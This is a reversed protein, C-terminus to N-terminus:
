DDVVCRFGISGDFHEKLFPYRMASPAAYDRNAFSNGRVIAVEDKGYLRSAKAKGGKYPEYKGQVWESVNGHMDFAGFVSQDEPYSGAALAHFLTGGLEESEHKAAFAEWAKENKLPGSFREVTHSKSGNWKNGWPYRNATPGRAAKEWEAGTPLRMDAWKCYAEADKYSVLTVPVDGMGNPYSQGRWNYKSAWEDPLKPQRHGTEKVFEQYLANTV